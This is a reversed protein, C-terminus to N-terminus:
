SPWIGKRRLLWEAIANARPNNLPLNFGTSGDFDRFAELEYPVMESEKPNNKQLWVLENCWGDFKFDSIISENLKYYIISHVVIQRRRQNIKQILFQTVSSRSEM